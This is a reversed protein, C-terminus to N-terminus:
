ALHEPKRRATAAGPGNNLFVFSVGHARIGYSLVLTFIFPDKKLFRNNTEFWEYRCQSHLAELHSTMLVIQLLSSSM